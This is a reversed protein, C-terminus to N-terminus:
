LEIFIKVNKKKKKLEHSVLDSVDGFTLPSRAKGIQRCYGLRQEFLIIRKKAKTMMNLYM